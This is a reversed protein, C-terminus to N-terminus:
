PTATDGRLGLRHAGEDGIWYDDEIRIGRVGLARIRDFHVAGRYEGAAEAPDLIAPICYFGPEITVAMRQALPRDLRLYQFLPDASRARGPAYGARDGLDEMDHVDLGLLHGVGHPFVLAVSGDRVRAEADGEFLGLAVCSAALSRAAALHADRYEAGPHLARVAAEHARQVAEILDRQAASPRGARAWTRTIDAAYGLPSEAGVDCLVLDDAALPHLHADEHLVDGRTTVIPGYAHARGARAFASDFAARVDCEHVFSSRSAEVDRHVQRTFAVIANLEAEALQDHHLRSAVLADLLAEAAAAEGLTADLEAATAPDTFPPRAWGGRAPSAAASLEAAELVADDTASPGHWLADDGARSPLALSWHGADFRLSAGELPLGVLHLFHSSARFPYHNAAFNRSPARGAPIVVRADGLAAALAHRRAIFPAADFADLQPTRVRTM